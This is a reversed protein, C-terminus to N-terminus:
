VIMGSRLEAGALFSAGAVGAVRAVGTTLGDSGLWPLPQRTPGGRPAYDEVEVWTFPTEACSAGRNGTASRPGARSRQSGGGRPSGPLPIPPKWWPFATPSYPDPPKRSRKRRDRPPPADEQPSPPRPARSRASGHPSTRIKSSFPKRPELHLTPWLGGRKRDPASPRGGEPWPVLPAEERGKQWVRVCM